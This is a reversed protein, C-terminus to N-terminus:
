VVRQPPRPPASAPDRPVKGADLLARRAEGDAGREGLLRPILQSRNHWASFNSLDEGIKKTTYEFEHETMPRGELAQSELQSVVHRRYGWAHFNRRDKHLMKAVLALEEEWIQRAVSVALKDTAQSLTWLRYKWIWYCKPHQMLLPVTFVLEARIIDEDLKWFGNSNEAPPKAFGLCRRRINWVTYYEPNLRLLQSTLQFTDHDFLEDAVQSTGEDARRSCPTFM